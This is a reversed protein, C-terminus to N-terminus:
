LVMRTINLAGGMSWAQLNQIVLGCPCSDRDVCRNWIGVFWNGQGTVGKFYDRWGRWRHRAQQSFMNYSVYTFTATMDDLIWLGSQRYTYHLYQLSHNTNSYFFLQFVDHCWIQHQLTGEIIAKPMKCNKQNSLLLIEMVSTLIIFSHTYWTM